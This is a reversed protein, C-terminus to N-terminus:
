STSKKTRNAAIFLHFTTNIPYSPNFFGIGLQIGLAITYSHPKSSPVQIHTHPRHLKSNTPSLHNVYSLLAKFPVRVRSYQIGLHLQLLTYLLIFSGDLRNEEEESAHATQATALVIHRSYSLPDSNLM